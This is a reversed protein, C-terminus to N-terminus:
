IIDYTWAIVGAAIFRFARDLSRFNLTEVFDNPTHNRKNPDDEWNQSFTLAPFGEEWFPVHDSRDFGNQSIEFRMGSLSKDGADVLKNALKLDLGHLPNSEKRTYVKYNYNKSTKDNRKSDHGLMLLNVFGAFKEKRLSDKYKSVFARAGLYAFEQYDFFVIRVTKPTDVETLVEIMSLLSAVGSGNNDAGPQAASFNIDLSEKDYSITDYHAGLIIVDDPSISGKKEWIINKGKVAKLKDLQSIISNTFTNWKKYIPSTKPYNGAIEKQFNSRYVEKAYEVDPSFEDVVVFAKPDIEKVRDVLWSAAKEHGKTGVMRSPRCCSVFERLNRLLLDDKYKRIATKINSMRKIKKEYDRLVYTDASLACFQFIFILLYKM